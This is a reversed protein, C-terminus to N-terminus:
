LEIPRAEEASRYAADVARQIELGDLENIVPKEGRLISNVFHEIERRYMNRWEMEFVKTEVKDEGRVSLKLEGGLYGDFTVTGNEFSMAWSRYSHTSSWSQIFSSFAGGDHLAQFAVNDEISIDRNLTKSLAQVRRFRGAYWYLVYLIHVGNENLMGGSLEKKLLWHHAPVSGLAIHALNVPEGLRKDMQERIWMYLDHFRLCYGIMLFAASKEAARFMEEADRLNAAMPKELFVHIDRKLAEVVPGKHAFPPTTVVVADVGSELLEVYDTFRKPVGYKGAVEALRDERIDSVAEVEVGDLSKLNALHLEGMGGVGIVGFRLKSMRIM